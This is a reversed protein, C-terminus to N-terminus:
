LVRAYGDKLEFQTGYNEGTVLLPPILWRMDVVLSPM